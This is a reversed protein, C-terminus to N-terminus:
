VLINNSPTSVEIIKKNNVEIEKLGTKQNKNFNFSLLYGKKLHYYELYDALQKEGKKNYEDSQWIKLEIVSQKGLYDVIIDARTQERTQAETYYNGTGNIITYGNKDRLICFFTSRCSFSDNLM